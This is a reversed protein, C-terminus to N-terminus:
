RATAGYFAAQRARFPPPGLRPNFHLSEVVLCKDPRSTGSYAQRFPFRERTPMGGSGTPPPASQFIRMHKAVLSTGTPSDGVPVPSVEALDTSDDGTGGLWLPASQFMRMHKALFPTDTPSDGVPVPSDGTSGLCLPASQFM